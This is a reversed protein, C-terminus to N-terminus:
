LLIYIRLGLVITNKFESLVEFKYFVVIKSNNGYSPTPMSFFLAQMSMGADMTKTRYQVLFIGFQTLKTRYQVPGPMMLKKMGTGSQDSALSDLM